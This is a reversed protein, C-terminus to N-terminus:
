FFQRQLYLGIKPGIFVQLSNTREKEEKLFLKLIPYVLFAVDIERKLKMRESKLKEYNSENFYTEKNWM